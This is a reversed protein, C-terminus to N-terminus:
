DDLGALLTTLPVGFSKALARLTSLRPNAPGGAASSGQELLAYHNRTIGASKAVTAQLLGQELRLSRLKEGLHAAAENTKPDDALVPDNDTSKDM